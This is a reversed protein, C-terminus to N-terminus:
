EIKGEKTEDREQWENFQNDLAGLFETLNEVVILDGNVKFPIKQNWEILKNFLIKESVGLYDAVSPVKVRQSINLLEKFNKLMKVEFEPTIANANSIIDSRAKEKPERKRKRRLLILAIVWVIWIYYFPHPPGLQMLIDILDFEYSDGQSMVYTVFYLAQFILVIFILFNQTGKANNKGKEEGKRKIIIINLLIVWGLVIFYFLYTRFIDGQPLMTTATLNYIIFLLFLIM